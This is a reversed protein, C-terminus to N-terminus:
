GIWWDGVWGIGEVKGGEEGPGVEGGVELREVGEAGEAAFELALVAGVLDDVGEHV